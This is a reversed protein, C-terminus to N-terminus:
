RDPLGIRWFARRITEGHVPHAVLRNMQSVAKSLKKERRLRDVIGAWQDGASDNLSRAVALGFANASSPM